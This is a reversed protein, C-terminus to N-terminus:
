RTVGRFHRREDLSVKQCTYVSDRMFFWALSGVVLLGTGTSSTPSMAGIVVLDRVCGTVAPAVHWEVLKLYKGDAAMDWVVMAYSRADVQREFGLDPCLLFTAVGFCLLTIPAHSCPM